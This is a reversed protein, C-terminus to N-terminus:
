DCNSHILVGPGDPTIVPIWAEAIEDRRELDLELPARVGLPNGAEHAWYPIRAVLRALWKVREEPVDDGTWPWMCAEGDHFVGILEDTEVPRDDVEFAARGLLVLYGEVSRQQCAVGASQNTYAVGTPYRVLVGMWNEPLTGDPDVDVVRLEGRHVRAYLENQEEIFAM